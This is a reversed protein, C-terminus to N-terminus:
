DDKVNKDVDVVESEEDNPNEDVEVGEEEIKSNPNRYKMIQRDCIMSYVEDKFASDTNVKEVFEQTSLKHDGSPLKLTWKASTGTILSHEKLFDM